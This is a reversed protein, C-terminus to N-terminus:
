GTWVPPGVPKYGETIWGTSNTPLLIGPDTAHYAEPIKITPGPTGGGSGVINVHACNVYWQSRDKNGWPWFQEMRLLYTGPPTTSPITFNVFEKWEVEWIKDDILGEYSIRFWDGDGVDNELDDSKAMYVSGPGEHFIHNVSNDDVHLSKVQFAVDSGAVITATETGNASNQASRGCRVDVEHKDDFKPYQPEMKADEEHPPAYSSINAVDRVYQWRASQTGNVILIPFVYHAIAGQTLLLCLLAASKMM